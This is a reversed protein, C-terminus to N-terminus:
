FFSTVRLYTDDVAPFNRGDFTKQHELGAILPLPLLGKRWAGIGSWSLSLRWQDAKAQTNKRLESTDTGKVSIYRDGGKDYRHWTASTRWAGLSYGIEIDHEYINGLNRSLREKSDAPPLLEGPRPVRLTAKDSLQIKSEFLLRLDFGHGLSRYYEIRNRVDTSGDGIPVDLLNDVDDKKAIGFRIGFGYVLSDQDGQYFRWLLGLTPDDFGSVETNKIAKYAFGFVPDSLIQRVGETGVAQSAGGGVPTFPFNGADVPQSPDFAPNFGTNGGSVSFNVKTRSKGYPLIMGITLNDTLGYGLTWEAYHVDVETDLATIGLSANGGLASLAPFVNNNLPIRDLDADLDKIKGSTEYRSHYGNIRVEMRVAWRGKPALLHLGHEQFAKGGMGLAKVPYFVLTLLFLFVGFSFIKGLGRSHSFTM